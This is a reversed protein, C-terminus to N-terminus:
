PNVKQMLERVIKEACAESTYDQPDDLPHGPRNHWARQEIPFNTSSDPGRWVTYSGGLCVGNYRSVSMELMPYQRPPAPQGPALRIVQFGATKLEQELAVTRSNMASIETADRERKPQKWPDFDGRTHDQEKRSQTSNDWIPFLIVKSVHIPLSSPDSVCSTLALSIAIFATCLSLQM